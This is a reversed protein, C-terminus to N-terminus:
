FIKRSLWSHHGAISTLTGHDRWKKKEILINNRMCKLLMFVSDGPVFINPAGPFFM